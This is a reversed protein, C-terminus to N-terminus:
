SSMRGNAAGRRCEREWKELTSFLRLLEEWTTPKEQLFMDGGWGSEGITEGSLIITMRGYKVGARACVCGRGRGVTGSPGIM